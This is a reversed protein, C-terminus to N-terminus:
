INIDDPVNRNTLKPQGIHNVDISYCNQPNYWAELNVKHLVYQKVINLWNWKNYVLLYERNTLWEESVKKPLGEFTLKLQIKLEM